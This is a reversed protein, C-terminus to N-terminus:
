KQDGTAVTLKLHVEKMQVVMKEQHWGQSKYRINQVQVSKLIIHKGLQSM